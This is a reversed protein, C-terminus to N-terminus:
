LLENFNRRIERQIKNLSIPEKLKVFLSKITEESLNGNFIRTLIPYVETKKLPKSFALTFTGIKATPKPKFFTLTGISLKREM